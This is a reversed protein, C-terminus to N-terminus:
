TRPEMPSHPTDYCWPLAEHLAEVSLAEDVKQGLRQIEDMPSIDDKTPLTM